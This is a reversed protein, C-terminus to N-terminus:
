LHQFSFLLRLSGSPPQQDAAGLASKSCARDGWTGRGACWKKRKGRELGLKGKRLFWDDLCLKSTKLPTKDGALPLLNVNRKLRTNGGPIKWKESIYVMEMWMCHTERHKNCGWSLPLKLAWEWGASWSNLCLVVVATGMYLVLASSRNYKNDEWSCSCYEIGAM